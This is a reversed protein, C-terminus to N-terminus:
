NSLAADEIGKKYVGFHESFPHSELMCVSSDRNKYESFELPHYNGALV